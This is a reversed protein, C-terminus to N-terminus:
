CIKIENVPLYLQALVFPSLTFVWYVLLTFWCCHVNISHGAFGSPLTLRSQLVIARVWGVDSSVPLYAPCQRCTALLPVGCLIIMPGVSVCVWFLTAKLAKVFLARM